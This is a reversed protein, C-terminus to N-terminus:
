RRKTPCHSKTYPLTYGSARSVAFARCTPLVVSRVDEFGSVGLFVRFELGQM